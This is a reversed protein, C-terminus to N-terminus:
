LSIEIAGCGFTSNQGVHILEGVYAWALLDASSLFYEIEGVMGKFPHLRGGKGRVWCKISGSYIQDVELLREEHASLQLSINRNELHGDLRYLFVLRRSINKVLELYSPGEVLPNGNVHFILPSKLSVVVSIIPESIASMKASVENGLTSTNCGQVVRGDLTSSVSVLSYPLRNSGLGAGGGREVALVVSEAYKVGLGYLSVSFSFSDGEKYFTKENDFFGLAYPKVSDGDSLRFIECFANKDSLELSWGLMGRLCSGKFAPLVGSKEMRVRFILKCYDLNDLARRILDM